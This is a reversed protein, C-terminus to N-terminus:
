YFLQSLLRQPVAASITRPHGVFTSAAQPAERTQFHSYSRYSENHAEWVGVNKSRLTSRHWCGLFWRCLGMADRGKRRESSDWRISSKPMQSREWHWLCCCCGLGRLWCPEPIWRCSPVPPGRQSTM